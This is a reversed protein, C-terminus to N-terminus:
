AASVKAAKACRPLHVRFTSGCGPGDSTAEIRGGHDGVIRHTISLGLGTGKGNLKETFFPEYLNEIVSATMGCGDDKVSLVVEDVMENIGITLTGKGSMSELGNAVLNLVVQKIEAASVDVLHPESRDFIIKRGDFKSMHNVMELVEVVIKTLDQRTKPGNTGRAFDLVRSTIQQCRTSEREIMGLYTALLERDEKPLEQGLSGESLRGTLSEAAAGIAQLPNNIEHAVGSAFFGIGALRENRLIQRSREEVEQALKAKDTQFRETMKNFMEGLEAMEDKGRLKLRYTYDGNAVRSAAEHLQRIPILIWHNGFYILSFFLVLVITTPVGILWLRWEIADWTGRFTFDVSNPPDHIERVLHQLVTIDYFMSLALEHPDVGELNDFLKRKYDLLQIRAKIQNLLGETLVSHLGPAPKKQFLLGWRRYYEKFENGLTKSKEDWLIEDLVPEDAIIKLTGDESLRLRDIKQSRTSSPILSGSLATIADTLDMRRPIEDHSSRLKDVLSWYAYLASLGTISLLLIMAFVVVLGIVLKRRISRTLILEVDKGTM